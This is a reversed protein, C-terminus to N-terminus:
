WHCARRIPELMSKLNTMEFLYAHSRGDTEVEFQVREVQTWRNIHAISTLGRPSILIRKSEASQWVDDDSRQGKLLIRLPVRRQEQPTGLILAATTIDAVCSLMLIAPTDEEPADASRFEKMSLYVNTAGPEIVPEHGVENVLAQAKEPISGDRLKVPKIIKKKDKIDDWRFKAPHGIAGFRFQWTQDHAEREAEMRRAQQELPGDPANLEEVFEPIPEGASLVTISTEFLRDFCALRNVRGITQTCVELQAKEVRVTDARASAAPLISSSASLVSILFASLTRYGLRKSIM